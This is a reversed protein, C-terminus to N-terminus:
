LEHWIFKNNELPTETSPKLWAVFVLLTSDSTPVDSQTHKFMQRIDGVYPLPEQPERGAAPTNPNLWYIQILSSGASGRKSRTTPTVRHGDLLAYNYIELFSGLVETNSMQPRTRPLHVRTEDRDYYHLLGMLIFDDDIRHSQEAISGPLVRMLTREIGKPLDFQM